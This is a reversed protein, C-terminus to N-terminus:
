AKSGPKTFPIKEKCLPCNDPEFSEVDLQLLPKFPYSFNIQGGSRDILSSIGVIKIDKKDELLNIVEQVSGGTTVVDEVVLVKSNPKLQFNRRLTMKGEKREAFIARLGLAQGVAYSVIIGGLAPGIVVDIEEKEWLKAIGEALQNAYVPYQLVQACQLYKNAHRGSSLLFHGTQLVGTDKLIELIKERSIM